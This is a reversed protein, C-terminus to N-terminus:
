FRALLQDYDAHSGVWYWVMTNGDRVGVARYSIGVRASYLTRSNM